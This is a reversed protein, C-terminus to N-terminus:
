LGDRDAASGGACTFAYTYPQVGGAAVPLAENHFTGVSLDVKSPKSLTLVPIVLYGVELRLGYTVSRQPRFGPDSETVRYTCFYTRGGEESPAAGALISQDPLLTVWGPCVEISSEYPLFGAPSVFRFRINM